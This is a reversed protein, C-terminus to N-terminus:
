PYDAMQPVREQLVVKASRGKKKRGRREETGRTPNSDQHRAEWKLLRTM